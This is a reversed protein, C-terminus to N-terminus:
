EDRLNQYYKEKVEYCSRLKQTLLWWQIILIDLLHDRSSSTARKAQTPKQLSRRISQM